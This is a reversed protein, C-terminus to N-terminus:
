IIKFWSSTVPNLCLQIHTPLEKTIGFGVEEGGRLRTIEWWIGMWGGGVEWRGDGKKLGCFWGWRVFGTIVWVFDRACLGESRGTFGM